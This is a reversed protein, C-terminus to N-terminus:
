FPNRGGWVFFGGEEPLKEVYMKEEMLIILFLGVFCVRKNREIAGHHVSNEHVMCTKSEYLTHHICPYRNLSTSIM